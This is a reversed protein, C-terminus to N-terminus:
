ENSNKNRRGTNGSDFMKMMYMLSGSEVGLLREINFVFAQIRSAREENTMNVMDDDFITNTYAVAMEMCEYPYPTSFLGQEIGERIIETLIPPVSNIIVKQIKQHMLANQPKHIHEIIEKGNGDNINLAMVVRIIRENIPISKDAAIEKAAGLLLVTYREILADMINEKSKFHYYLTGRAIGVKELIDNTSTGDFGKQGFLEDAADLIENRREEAKKIVRM